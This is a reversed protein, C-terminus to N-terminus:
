TKFPRRRAGRGKGMRTFSSQGIAQAKLGSPISGEPSFPHRRQFSPAGEPAYLAVAGFARRKARGAERPSHAAKPTEAARIHPKQPSRRACIGSKPRRAVGFAAYAYMLNTSGPSRRRADVRLLCGASPLGKGPCGGAALLEGCSLLGLYGSALPLYARLSWRDNPPGTVLM